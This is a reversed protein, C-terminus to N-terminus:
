KIKSISGHTREATLFNERVDGGGMMWIKLFSSPKEAFIMLKLFHKM